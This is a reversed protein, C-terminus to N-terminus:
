ATVGWGRTPVTRGVSAPAASSRVRLRAAVEAPRTPPNKQLRTQDQQFARWAMILLALAAGAAAALAVFALFPRCAPGAGAVCSGVFGFWTGISTFLSELGAM